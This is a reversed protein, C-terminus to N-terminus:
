ARAPEKGSAPKAVSLVQRQMRPRGQERAALWRLVRERPFRVTGGLKLMPMTPDAKALRYISKASLQLLDAVQGPTLYVPSPAKAPVSDQNVTTSRGVKLDTVINGGGGSTEPV